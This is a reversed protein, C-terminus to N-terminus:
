RSMGPVAPVPAWEIDLEKEEIMLDEDSVEEEIDQPPAPPTVIRPRPAQDRPAFWANPDGNRLSQYHQVTRALGDRLRVSPAWGLAKCAKAIQPRAHAPDWSPAPVYTPEIARRRKGTLELVLTWLFNIQVAEGSAINYIDPEAQLAARLAAVVNDIYILDRTQQGDGFIAPSNGDLAARIFRAVVSADSRDAEEEPGFTRFLRLCTAFVGHVERYIRGYHEVTLAMAADTTSPRPTLEEHLVFASKMGYINGSSCLVVRPRDRRDMQRVADLVNLTGGLNVQQARAADSGAPLAALHLIADAGKAARAVTAQNRVDGQILDLRPMGILRDRKGTSFDDLIRVMGGGAVVARAAHSGIFGAGGTILVRSGQKLM